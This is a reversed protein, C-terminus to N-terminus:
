MGLGNGRGIALRGSCCVSNLPGTWASIKHISTNHEDDRDEVTLSRVDRYLAASSPRGACYVYMRPVNVTLTKLSPVSALWATPSSEDLDIIHLYRIFRRLAENIIISSRLMHQDAFTWVTSSYWVPRAEYYILHCTLLVQYRTECGEHRIVRRPVMRGGDRGIYFSSGAFVLHYIQLRLETPLLLIPSARLAMAGTPTSPASRRRKIPGSFPTTRPMCYRPSTVYITQLNSIGSRHCESYKYLPPQPVLFELM